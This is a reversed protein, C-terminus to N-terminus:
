SMRRSYDWSSVNLSRILIAVENDLRSRLWESLPANGDDLYRDILTSLVQDALEPHLEAVGHGRVGCYPPDDAAVEFGVAPDNRLRRVLLSDAQSCCWITDADFDFWVSQVLPHQTGRTALRIPIRSRRLFDSVEQAYWPGSILEMETGDSM